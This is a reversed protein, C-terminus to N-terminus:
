TVVPRDPPIKSAVSQGTFQVAYKWDSILGGPGVGRRDVDLGRGSRRDAAALHM